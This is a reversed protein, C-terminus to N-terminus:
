HCRKSCKKCSEILHSKGEAMLKRIKTFKEGTWVEELTNERIDGLIKDDNRSGCCLCIKGDARLTLRRFVSECFFDPTEEIIKENRYDECFPSIRISDVYPKWFKHYSKNKLEKKNVKMPIIQIQVFPKKAQYFQKLHKLWIVNEKVTCLNGNVRIKEYIEHKWSDVSFILFDLRSTILRMLSKKNFLNGNTAMITEVIGKEKAYDIGDFIRPYLLPEGLYCFKISSGGKESFEDIAKKMIEFDMDLPKPPIFSHPCMICKLNCRTTPEIDLHIPIKDVKHLRPYNKWKWRYTEYKPNYKKIKMIKRRTFNQILKM